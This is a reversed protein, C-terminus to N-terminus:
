NEHDTSTRIPASITSRAKFDVPRPSRYKSILIVCLQHSKDAVHHSISSAVINISMSLPNSITVCNRGAICASISQRRFPTRSKYMSDNANKSKAAKPTASYSQYLMIIFRVGTLSKVMTNLGPFLTRHSIGLKISLDSSIAQQGDHGEKVQGQVHLQWLLNMSEKNDILRLLVVPIM